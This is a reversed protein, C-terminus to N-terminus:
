GEEGTAGVAGLGAWGGPLYKAAEKRAFAKMQAGHADLFARTQAPNHKSLDRLWWAVAKQMFWEPQAVYGAAWGLVRARVAAEVPKPTGSKAFPLTVVLAARRVWMSASRTWGEVEDIRRPDAVVRKQGAIMVHDAIAWGDFDPLWRVMLGWVEADAPRFRNQDLLKAAAVRAEHVGARWLGEALALRAPLEAGRWGKVLADIQPVPVGFFARTSKHYAAMQVAREADGLAALAALAEDPTTSETM